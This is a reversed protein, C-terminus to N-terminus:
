FFATCFLLCCSFRDAYPLGVPEVKAGDRMALLLKITGDKSHQTTVVEAHGIEYEKGLQARLADPLNTMEEFTRAGHQYIWDALQNGRYVQEGNRQVLARLEDTNLGLLATLM